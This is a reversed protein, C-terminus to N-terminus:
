LVKNENAQMRGPWRQIWRITESGTSLNAYAVGTGLFNITLLSTKVTALLLFNCTMGFDIAVVLDPKKQEM